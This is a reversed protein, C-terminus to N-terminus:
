KLVQCLELEIISRSPFACCVFGGERGDWWLVCSVVWWEEESDGGSGGPKGIPSDLGLGTERSVEAVQRNGCDGLRIDLVSEGLDVLLHHIVELGLLLGFGILSTLSNKSFRLAMTALIQIEPRHVALGDAQRERKRSV